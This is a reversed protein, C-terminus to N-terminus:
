IVYMIVIDVTFFDEWTILWTLTSYISMMEAVEETEMM